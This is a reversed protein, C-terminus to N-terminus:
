GALIAATLGSTAPFSMLQVPPWALANFARTTTLLAVRVPTRDELHRCSVDTGSNTLIKDSLSTKAPFAVAIACCSARIM